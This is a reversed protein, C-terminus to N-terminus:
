RKRSSRSRPTCSPRAPDVERDLGDLLSGLQDDDLYHYNVDEDGSDTMTYCYRVQTGAPVSIGTETGCTDHGDDVMVTMALTIEPGLVTVFLGDYGYVVTDSEVGTAEWTVDHLASKGFAGTATLAVGDGPQVLHDFGPGAIQGIHSDRVDHLNLAEDGTNTLTYCFRLLTGKEVIAATDTGCTDSGDDVMVTMDVSMVASETAVGLDPDIPRATVTVSDTALGPEGSQVVTATWTGTSTHTGTLMEIHSGVIAEGPELDIDVDSLISGFVDNDLHHATLTHDGTNLMRYCYEVQTGLPVTLSEGTGTCSNVGDFEGVTLELSMSPAGAVRASGATVLATAAVAAGTLISRTRVHPAAEGHDADDFRPPRPRPRVRSRRRPVPGPRLCRREVRLRRRVPCRRPRVSAFRVGGARGADHDDDAARAGSEHDDDHDHGAASDDDDHGAAPDDDHDRQDDDHDREITSTTTAITSPPQTMPPDTVPPSAISVCPGSTTTTAPGPEGIEFRVSDVALADADSDVGIAEWSSIWIAPEHIVTM